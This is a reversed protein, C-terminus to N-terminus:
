LLAEVLKELVKVVGAGILGDRVSRKWQDGRYRKMEEALAENYAELADRERQGARITSDQLAVTQSCRTVVLGCLKLATDAKAILPKADDPIRATDRMAAYDDAADAFRASDERLQAKARLASDQWALTSRGLAEIVREHASYDPAPERKTALMVGLTLLAGALAWGIASKM